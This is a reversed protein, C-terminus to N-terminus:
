KICSTYKSNYYNVNKWDSSNWKLHTCTSYKLTIKQKQKLLYSQDKRKWLGMEEQKGKGKWYQECQQSKLILKLGTKLVMKLIRKPLLYRKKFMILFTSEMGQVTCGINKRSLIVWPGPFVVIPSVFNVLFFFSKPSSIM